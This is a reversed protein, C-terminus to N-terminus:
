SYRRRVLNVFQKAREISKANTWSYVTVLNRMMYDKAPEFGGISNLQTLANNFAHHDDSFLEKIMSIKDNLGIAKSLDPISTSGWKGAHEAAASDDFLAYAANINNTSAQKVPASPTNIIPQQIVSEVKQVPTPPPPPTVTPTPTTSVQNTQPNTNDMHKLSDPIKILIPASTSAISEVASESSKNFKDNFTKGKNANALRDNISTGKNTPLADAITKTNAAISDNLDKPANNLPVNQEVVPVQEVQQVPQQAPTDTYTPTAIPQPPTVEQIPTDVVPAVAQVPPTTDAMKTEPVPATETTEGNVCSEYLQSVYAKMLDKEISSIKGDMNINKHLANIKQLIIQFQALNM